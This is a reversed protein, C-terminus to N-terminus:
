RYKKIKGSSQRGRKKEARRVRKQQERRRSKLRRSYKSTNCTIQQDVDCEISKTTREENLAHIVRLLDVYSVNTGGSDRGKQELISKNSNTIDSSGFIRQDILPAMKRWLFTDGM